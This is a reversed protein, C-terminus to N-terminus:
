REVPHDPSGSAAQALLFEDALTRLQAAVMKWKGVDPDYLVGRGVARSAARQIQIDELLNARHRCACAVQDIIRYVERAIEPGLPGLPEEMEHGRPSTM